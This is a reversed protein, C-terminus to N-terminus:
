EMTTHPKFDFSLSLTHHHHSTLFACLTVRWPEGSNGSLCIYDYIIIEKGIYGIMSLHTELRDTDGLRTLTRRASLQMNVRRGLMQLAQNVLCSPVMSMGAM